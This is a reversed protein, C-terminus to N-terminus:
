FAFGGKFQFRKGDESVFYSFTLVALDFPSIWLGGGYTEHWNGSENEVDSWVRGYDYGGMVGLTFPLVYNEVNFLRIRLDNQHWFATHGTFRENRYGRLNDRAGLTAGQYFEFEGAVHKAGIRSALVIRPNGLYVGFQGSAYRMSRDAEDLNSKFGATGNFTIGMTPNAINDVNFYNVQAEAGGFYINRFVEDRIGEAGRQVLREPNDDVKIAEGTAGLSISFNTNLRRRFTPYLGFHQQRVRIFDEPNNESDALLDKSDNGFGFFNRTYLPGQVRTDLLFDWHRIAETFIGSYEFEYGKTEIAFKGGIKHRAAFPAKKFGYTTFIAGGGLVLGDDPNAAIFPYGIGYNHEYDYARRDYINFAPDYSTKNATESSATIQKTDDTDYFETLKAGGEVNSEDIFIDDDLGGICRILIGQKVKGKVIFRDEQDLAYINVTETEGSLFTREYFLEGGNGEKDTAFGQVLTRQDDLRNIVFRDHKNTGVIDVDKSVLEYFRRAISLTRDRRGKLREAIWPADLAYIEKPFDRMASDIVADTLHEQIYKAEREWVSWDAENLFSPDFYKSHYNVWKTNDVDVDYVKLQKLFPIGHSLRRPLFGDYKIFVQDRDRAIPRYTTIDTAKDKFSAWRWNDDHRDFDGLLNDFIRTRVTFAADIRHKHNKERKKLVDPTAVLEKSNGFNPAHSWDGDAREEVLYLGGGFIDNFDGLAPQKPLYYLQPTPHYLGIADSLRGITFAAYPNSSTFQDAFVDKAFTKNYPYPLIRSEDKKMDRLVWQNGNNDEVRLSNTQSGGGRKVPKVGGRWTELDLVPAKVPTKYTMRYHDGWFFRHVKGMKVGTNLALEVSDKHQDYEPFDTPLESEYTKLKGKVQRSFLLRGTEGEKNAAWFELFVEGEKFFKLVSFGMEGGYAFQAGRGKGAPEHKSGAGSVLYSQGDIEFYQLNHEHGSVIIFSGNKKASSEVIRKLERAQPHSTDQRPGVTARLFQFVSGIVPLPIYLNKKFDTLPFLHQKLTFRGGHEGNTYLPHHMAIVLNKSRNKKLENQFFFAFSERSKVECGENLEREKHWNMLYWESDIIVTAVSKSLDKTEPGSCGEDPLWVNGRDLYAEVYEEVREIGKRPRKQYWDHNGPIFFVKGKYDKVIDLQANIREEALAREPTKRPPMGKPYINDGLFMVSSNEPADKLRKGLLKIAPPITGPAFDGADGILYMTHEPEGYEAPIPQTQPGEVHLKYDACSSLLLVLTLSFLSLFRRM